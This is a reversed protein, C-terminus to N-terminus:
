SRGQEPCGTGPPRPRADADLVRRLEARGRRSLPRGTVAEALRALSPADWGLQIGVRLIGFRLRREDAQKERPL